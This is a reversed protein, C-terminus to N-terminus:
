DRRVPEIFWVLELEDYILTVLRASAREPAVAFTALGQREGAILAPLNAADFVEGGAFIQASGWSRVLIAGVWAQDAATKPRVQMGDFDKGSASGPRAGLGLM